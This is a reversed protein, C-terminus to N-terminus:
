RTKGLLKAKVKREHGVVDLQVDLAIAGREVLSRRASLIRSARRVPAPHVTNRNSPRAIIPSIPDQTLFIRAVM